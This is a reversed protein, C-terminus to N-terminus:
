KFVIFITPYSTIYYTQMHEQTPKTAAGQTNTLRCGFWGSSGKGMRNWTPKDIHLDDLEAASVHLGM